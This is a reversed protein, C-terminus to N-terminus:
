IDHCAKCLRSGRTEVSLFKENESYVDHCSGCGVKNDFLRIRKDLSARPRFKTSKGRIIVTPTSPYRVGVPHSSGRPAGVRGSSVHASVGSGFTGDHCSLCRVTLPDLEAGTAPPESAAAHATQTVLVHWGRPDKRMGAEHCEQCFQAGRKTGRLLYASKGKSARAHPDHCSSCMLRGKADLPWGAPMAKKTAVEFPHGRRGSDPHCRECVARERDYRLPYDTGAANRGDAPPTLGDPPANFHCSRCRDKHGHPDRGLLAAHLLAAGVM